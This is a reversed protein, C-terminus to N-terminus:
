FKILVFVHLELSVNKKCTISRFLSYLFRHKLESFSFQKSQALVIPRIINDKCDYMFLLM